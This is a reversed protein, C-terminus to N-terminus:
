AGSSPKLNKGKAKAQISERIPDLWDDAEHFGTGSGAAAMAQQRWQQRRSSNISHVNAAVAAVDPRRQRRGSGGSNVAAETSRRQWQQGSGGDSYAASAALAPHERRGQGSGVIMMREQRERWRGRRGGGAAGALATSQLRRRGDSSGDAGEAGAAVVPQERRRKGHDIWGGRRVGRNTASASPVLYIGSSSTTIRAACELVRRMSLVDRVGSSREPHPSWEKMACRANPSTGTGPNSRTVNTLTSGSHCTCRM